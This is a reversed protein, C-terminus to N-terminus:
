DLAVTLDGPSFSLRDGLDIPQAAALPGFALLHGGTDADYFAFHTIAGWSATAEPFALATANAIQGASAPAWDMSGTALRAYAGGSPETVGTGDDAPPTTSLAVYIAPPSYTGKSFLHDLIQNEWYDTFASM